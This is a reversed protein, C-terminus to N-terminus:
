KWTQMLGEAQESIASEISKLFIKEIQIGDKEPFKWTSDMNAGVVLIIQFIGLFKV